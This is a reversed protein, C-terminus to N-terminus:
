SKSSRRKPPSRGAGATAAQSERSRRWLWGIAFAAVGIIVASEMPREAVLSRTSRGLRLSGKQLEGGMARVHDFGAASRRAIARHADLLNQAVVDSAAAISAHASDTASGIRDNIWEKALM